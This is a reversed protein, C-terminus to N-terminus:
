LDLEELYNYRFNYGTNLLFNPKINLSILLSFPIEYYKGMLLKTILKVFSRPIKIVLNLPLKRYKKILIKLFESFRLINPNVVNIPQKISNLNNNKTYNILFEIILPIEKSYIWPLFPDDFTLGVGLYSNIKLMKVFLADKDLVVGLRLNFVNSGELEHTVKEWELCLKSM